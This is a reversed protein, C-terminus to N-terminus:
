TLETDCMPTQTLVVDFLFVWFARAYVLVCARVCACVCSRACASSICPSVCSRVLSRVVLRNINGESFLSHPVFRLSRETEAFDSDLTEQTLANRNRHVDTSEGALVM